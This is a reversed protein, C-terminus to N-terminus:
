LESWSTAVLGGKKALEPDYHFSANGTLTASKGIMAGYIGGNGHITLDAEPAYITGVFDANGTYTISTCGGLGLINFNGAFGTGNLVGNGAIKVNGGVYLTLSGGPQIQIYGTGSIDVNGTNYIIVNGTIILPSPLSSSLYSGSPLYTGLIGSLVTTGPMTTFSSANSPPYNSPFSVNMNDNTWGQEKGNHGNNWSVDGVNGGSITGGPGTTVTGYVTGGGLDVAPSNTSDTAINGQSGRNTITDYAGIASDYSDVLPNSGNFNIPGTTALAKTFVNPPNTTAVLVTRAIYQSAKLPSRVYAQSIIYPANSSPSYITTYFYSGDTFTRQKRYVLQGGLTGATWGNTAPNSDDRMHTMAEEVGAELVPIAENWCSSRMTMVCRGEILKLTAALVMGVALCFILVLLLTNGRQTYKAQKLHVSPLLVKWAM